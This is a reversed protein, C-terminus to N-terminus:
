TPLAPNLYRPARLMSVARPGVNFICQFLNVVTLDYMIRADMHSDDHADSPSFPPGQGGRSKSM